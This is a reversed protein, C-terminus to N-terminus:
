DGERVYYFPGPVSWEQRTRNIYEGIPEGLFGTVRWRPAQFLRAIKECYRIALRMTKLKMWRTVIRGERDDEAEQWLNRETNWIPNAVVRVTTHYHRGGAGQFTQIYVKIGQPEDGPFKRVWPKPIEALKGGFMSTM